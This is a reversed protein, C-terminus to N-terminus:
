VKHRTRKPDTMDYSIEILPFLEATDVSGDLLISIWNDRNMHYAPLFGKAKRLSGNMIPDCKINLIDVLGDGALDLRNKPIDMVLAYWKKNGLQRLVAYNPLSLWPYDPTTGFRWAAFALVDERTAGNHNTKSM